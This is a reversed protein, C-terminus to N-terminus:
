SLYGLVSGIIPVFVGIVRLIFKATLPNDMTYWIAVVNMIWGVTIVIYIAILTIYYAPGHDDYYRAM